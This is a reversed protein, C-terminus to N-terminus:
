FAVSYIPSIFFAANHIESSGGLIKDKKIKVITEMIYIKKLVTRPSFLNACRMGIATAHSTGKTQIMNGGERASLTSDGCIIM